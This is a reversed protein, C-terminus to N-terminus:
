TLLEWILFSLVVLVESIGQIGDRVSMGWLFDSNSTELVM